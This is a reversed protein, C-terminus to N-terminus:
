VSVPEPAEAEQLLELFAQAAMGFHKSKRHIIGLPRVLGPAEMPIAVLRGQEMEPSLIRKPLVAVGSGIVLAEKVTQINDFQMVMRVSVGEKNFFRDLERRITLESDFGIYDVGHLDAPRITLRQSISHFPAAAVVMEERRWPIAVLDKSSEPYSVLGLDARRSRVAEYVRDPRMYDVQLRAQPCRRLFESQLHTMESLGVSYISAVRIEGEASGKLREIEVRLRQERRLIDRCFELYVSGAETLELPRSSRDVLTLGLRKELAHLHQSVASQSIGNQRAAQSISRTQGIDRFLKVDPFNV